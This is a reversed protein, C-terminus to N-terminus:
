LDKIYVRVEHPATEDGGFYPYLQYGAINDSTCGRKMETKKGNYDFIYQAPQVTISLEVPDGIAATGLLQSSRVGDAYCYAYLAIANGNWLWGVRASNQHHFSACDSFGYLKNIDAANAADINSYICSSDFLAKFRMEKKSVMRYKGTLAAHQNKPIIYETYETSPNEKNIIDSQKKSCAVGCVLIALYM